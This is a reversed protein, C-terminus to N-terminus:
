GVPDAHHALTFEADQWPSAGTLALDALAQGWVPAFKFGNGSMGAAISIRGEGITDIIPRSDPSQSDPHVSWRVPEPDLSPFIRQAQTGLWRLQERSLTMPRRAPNAVTPLHLHPSVKVSFGDISPAGFAHMDGFDRMFGPLRAPLFASIDAPMFWALAFNAVTLMRSLGPVLRATWPGATVIVHGAEVTGASTEIRVGTGTPSLSTVVTNYLVEAGDAQAQRSAAFVASEPRVVGALEDLFGEDGHDVAFQPYQRRLDDADFHRHPLDFEEAASLAAHLDPHGSPAIHIAGAPILLGRAALRGLELWRTRAELLAPTLHRGEKAAVRFLRSEGTFAGHTHVTGYQEIGLVRLTSASRRRATSLAWLAMSGITGVGVVAVDVVRAAPTTHKSM